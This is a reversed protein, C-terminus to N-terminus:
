NNWPETKIQTIVSHVESMAIKEIEVLLEPSVGSLGLAISAPVNELMIKLEKLCITWASRVADIQIVKDDEKESKPADKSMSSLSKQATTWIKHFSISAVPDVGKMERYRMYADACEAEQRAIEVRLGKGEIAGGQGKTPLPPAKRGKVGPEPEDTLKAMLSEKRQVRATEYTGSTM